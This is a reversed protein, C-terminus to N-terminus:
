AYAELRSTLEVYGLEVFQWVTFGHAALRRPAGTAPRLHFCGQRFFRKLVSAMVPDEALAV